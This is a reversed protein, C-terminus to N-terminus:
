VVQALDRQLVREHRGTMGANSKLKALDRELERLRLEHRRLMGEDSRQRLVMLRDMGTEMATHVATTFAEADGIREPDRQFCLTLIGYQTGRHIYWARPYDVLHWGPSSEGARSETRVSHGQQLQSFLDDIEADDEVRDSTEVTGKAVLYASAQRYMARMRDSHYIQWTAPPLHGRMVMAVAGLDPRAPRAASVFDGLTEQLAEYSARQFVAHAQTTIHDVIAQADSMIILPDIRLVNCISNLDGAPTNGWGGTELRQVRSKSVGAKKALERQSLGAIERAVILQATANHARLASIETDM